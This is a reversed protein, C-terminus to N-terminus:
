VDLLRTPRVYSGNSGNYLVCEWGCRMPGSGQTHTLRTPLHEPALGAKPLKVPQAKLGEVQASGQTDVFLFVSAQQLKVEERRDQRM